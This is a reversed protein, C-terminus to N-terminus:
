RSPNPPQVADGRNGGQGNLAPAAEAPASGAGAAAANPCEYSHHGYGGCRYCQDGSKDRPTSRGYGRNRGPNQLQGAARIAGYRGETQAEESPGNNQAQAPPPPGNNGARGRNRGQKPGNGQPAPPPQVGKELLAKVQSIEVKLAEMEGTSDPEVVVSTVKGRVPRDQREGEIRRAALLLERWGEGRDYRPRLSERMRSTVGRFLRARIHVDGDEESMLTPCQARIKQVTSELRTGFASVREGKEQVMDYLDQLLDDAEVVTGFVLDLKKLIQAVTALPGLVRLVELASGKVSRKICDRVIVVSYNPQITDIEYRWQEYTVDNKGPHDGNFTSIWPPQGSQRFGTNLTQVLEEMGAPGSAVTSVSPSLTATASGSGNNNATVNEGRSALEAKMAEIRVKLNDSQQTGVDPERVVEVIERVVIPEPKPAELLQKLCAEPVPRYIGGEEEGADLYQQLVHRTIRAGVISVPAGDWRVVAELRRILTILAEASVMEVTVRSVDLTLIGTPCDRGELLCLEAIRSEELRGAPIQGGDRRTIIILGTRGELDSLREVAEAEVRRREAVEDDHEAM